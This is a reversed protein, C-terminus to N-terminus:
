NSTNINFFRHCAFVTIAFVAIGAFLQSVFIICMLFLPHADAVTPQLGDSESFDNVIFKM